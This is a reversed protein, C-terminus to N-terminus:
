NPLIATVIALLIGYNLSYLAKMDDEKRYKEYFSDFMSYIAMITFFTKLYIM